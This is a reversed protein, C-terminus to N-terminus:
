YVCYVYKIQEDIWYNNYKISNDDINVVNLFYILLLSYLCINM